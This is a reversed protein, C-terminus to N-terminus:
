RRELASGWVAGDGDSSSKLDSFDLGSGLNDKKRRRMRSFPLEEIEMGKPNTRRKGVMTTTRM